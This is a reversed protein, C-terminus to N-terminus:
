GESQSAEALAAEALEVQKRAEALAAEARERESLTPAQQAIDRARAEMEGQAAIMKRPSIVTAEYLAAAALKVSTVDKEVGKERIRLLGGTSQPIIIVMGKALIQRRGKLEEKAKDAWIALQLSAIEISEPLNPLGYIAEASKNASM